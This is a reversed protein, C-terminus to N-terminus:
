PSFNVPRPNLYFVRGRKREGYKTHLFLLWCYIGGREIRRAHARAGDLKYKPLDRIWIRSSPPSSCFLCLIDECWTYICWLLTLHFLSFFFFNDRDRRKEQPKGCFQATITIVIIRGFNSTLLLPSLYLQERKQQMAIITTTTSQNFSISGHKVLPFYLKKAPHISVTRVKQPKRFKRLVM